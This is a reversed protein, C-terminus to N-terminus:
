RTSYLSNNKVIYFNFNKCVFFTLLLLFIHKMLLENDYSIFNM